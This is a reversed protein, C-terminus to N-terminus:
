VDIAGAAVRRHHVLWQGDYAFMYPLCWCSYGMLLHRRFTIAQLLM